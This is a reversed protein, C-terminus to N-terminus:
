PKYEMKVKTVPLNAVFIQLLAGTTSALDRQRNSDANIVSLAALCM